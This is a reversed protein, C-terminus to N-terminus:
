VPSLFIGAETQLEGIKYGVIAQQILSWVEPGSAGTGAQAPYFPETLYSSAPTHGVQLVIRTSVAGVQGAVDLVANSITFSNTRNDFDRYATILNSPQNFNLQYFTEIYGAIKISPPPADPSPEASAVRVSLAISVITWRAM